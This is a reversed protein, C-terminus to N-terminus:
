TSQTRQPSTEKQRWLQVIVVGTGVLVMGIGKQLTIQEGLFLWALVAIMALMTSIIVSSEAATLTRLTHNFLTFALATNVVAMWGIIIWNVATIHPLGQWAVGGVLLALSGAGMSVTTVILPDLRAKRNVDRSMISSISNSFLCALVALYGAIESNPISVPYFFVLAGLTCLAVGSWQQLGPRETLFVIGLLAVVVTSFNLLLSVTIAPLYALAVFQAGQAVAYFLLGLLALWLWERPPLKRLVGIRERTLAFPLLCLFAMFYRLGAFTLPPINALGIKILVWSTAWLFTVFLAQLVARLHSNM